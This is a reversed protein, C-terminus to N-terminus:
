IADKRVTSNQMRTVWEPEYRVRKRWEMMRLDDEQLKRKPPRSKSEEKIDIDDGGHEDELGVLRLLREREEHSARQDIAELYDEEKQESNVLSDSSAESATDEFSESDSSVSGRDQATGELKVTTKDLTVDMGLEYEVEDYTLRVGNRTGARGDKYERGDYYVHFGARRPFTAWYEDWSKLGLIGGTTAIDHKTVVAAYDNGDTYRLRSTAQLLSARVLERTKAVVINYLHNLASQWIAPTSAIEHDLHKTTRWNHPPHGDMFINRSLQLLNAPILLEASKISSTSIPGTAARPNNSTESPNEEDSAGSLSEALNREFEAAVSEDILWLDGHLMREEEIRRNMEEVAVADAADELPDDTQKDIELSAPTNGIDFSRSWPRSNSRHTEEQLLMLYANIEPLSKTRVADRVRPLDQQGYIALGTFFAEKELSSWSSAGFRSPPLPENIDQFSQPIKDM